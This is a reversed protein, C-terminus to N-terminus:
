FGDGLRFTQPLRSGEGQGGYGLALGPIGVVASHARLCGPPRGTAGEVAELWQLQEPGLKGLGELAAVNTAAALQGSSELEPGPWVSWSAAGTLAMKITVTFRNNEVLRVEYMQKFQGVPEMSSDFPM